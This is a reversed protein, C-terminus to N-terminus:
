PTTLLNGVVNATKKLNFWLVGEASFLVILKHAKAPCLSNDIHVSQACCLKFTSICVLSPNPNVADPISNPPVRGGRIRHHLLIVVLHGWPLRRCGNVIAGRLGEAGVNLVDGLGCDEGSGGREGHQSHPTGLGRNSVLRCQPLTTPALQGLHVSPWPWLVILLWESHYLVPRRQLAALCFM